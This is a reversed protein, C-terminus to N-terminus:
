VLSFRHRPPPLYWVCVTTRIVCVRNPLAVCEGAGVVASSDYSTDYRYLLNGTTASTSLYLAFVGGAEARSALGHVGSAAATPNKFVAGIGFTYPTWTGSPTPLVPM